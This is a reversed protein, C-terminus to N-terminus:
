RNSRMSSVHSSRQYTQRTHSRQGTVDLMTSTISPLSVIQAAVRVRPKRIAFLDLALCLIIAGALLVVKSLVLAKREEQLLWASVVPSPVPRCWEQAVTHTDLTVCPIVLSPESPCVAADDLSSSTHIAYTPTADSPSRQRLWFTPIPGDDASSPLSGMAWVSSTTSTPVAISAVAEKSVACRSVANVSLNCPLARLSVRTSNASANHPTCDAIACGTTQFYVRTPAIDAMRLGCKVQIPVVAVVRGPANPSDVLAYGADWLLARQLLGSVKEFNVDADRARELVELPLLESDVDLRPASGGSKHVRYYIDILDSTIELDGPDAAIVNGKSSSDVTTDLRRNSGAIAVADLQATLTSSFRPPCFSAPVTTSIRCRIGDSAASNVELEIWNPWKDRQSARSPM